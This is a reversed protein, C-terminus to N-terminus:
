QTLTIQPEPCQWLNTINAIDQPVGSLSLTPTPISNQKIAYIQIKGYLIWLNMVSKAIHAMQITAKRVGINLHYYATPRKKVTSPPQSKSKGSSGM